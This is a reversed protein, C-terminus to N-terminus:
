QGPRPRDSDSQRRCLAPRFQRPDATGSFDPTNDKTINDNDFQGTDSLRDLNPVSSVNPPTTDVTIDLSASTSSANGAVDTQFARVHHLGEDLDIDTTFTGGSVLATGLTADGIDQDGDNNVDDYLTVTAGNEGNGAITLDSTFKTLNDTDLTGSDDSANLDLSSPTIPALTDVAQVSQTAAVNFNGFGDITVGGAVDVTLNGQFGATPTVVLTYTDGDVPTFTGKTGNAVVVDTADFGTM